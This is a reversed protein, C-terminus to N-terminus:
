RGIDRTQRRGTHNLGLASNAKQQLLRWGCEVVTRRTRSITVMNMKQRASDIIARLADPTLPRGTAVPRLNGHRRRGRVIYARIQCSNVM